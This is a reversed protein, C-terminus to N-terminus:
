RRDAASIIAVCLFLLLVIVLRHLGSVAATLGTVLRYILQDPDPDTPDTADSSCVPDIPLAVVMNGCCDFVAAGRRRESKSTATGPRLGCRRITQRTCGSGSRARHTQHARDRPRS